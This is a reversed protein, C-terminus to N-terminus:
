LGYIRKINQNNNKLASLLLQVSENDINNQECYDFIDYLGANGVYPMGIEDAVLNQQIQFHIRAPEPLKGDGIFRSVEALVPQFEKNSIVM